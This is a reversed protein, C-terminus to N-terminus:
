CRAEVCLNFLPPYTHSRVDKEAMRYVMSCQKTMENAPAMEAYANNVHRSEFTEGDTRAADVWM